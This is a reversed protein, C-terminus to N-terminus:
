RMRYSPMSGICAMSSTSGAPTQGRESCFSEPTGSRNTRSSGQFSAMPLASAPHAAGTRTVLRRETAPHAAPLRELTRETAPLTHM